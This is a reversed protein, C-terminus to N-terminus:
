GGMGGLGAFGAIVRDPLWRAMQRVLGMANSQQMIGRLMAFWEDVSGGHQEHRQKDRDHCPMRCLTQWNEQDWFLGVDGRHPDIHDVILNRQSAIANDMAGQNVQGYCVCLVCVPYAQLWANSAKRWRRDNYLHHDRTRIIHRISM